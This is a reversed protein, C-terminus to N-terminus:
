SALALKEVVNSLESTPNNSSVVRGHSSIANAAILFDKSRYKSSLRLPMKEKCTSVILAEVCFLHCDANLTLKKSDGAQNM